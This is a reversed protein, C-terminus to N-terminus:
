KRTEMREIEDLRDRAEQITLGTLSHKTQQVAVVAILMLGLLIFGAWQMATSGVVVGIAIVGIQTTAVFLARLPRFRPNTNINITTTM